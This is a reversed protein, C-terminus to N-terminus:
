CIVMTIQFCLLMGLKEKNHISGITGSVLSKSNSRVLFRLMLMM